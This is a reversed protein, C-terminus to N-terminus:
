LFCSKVNTSNAKLTNYGKSIVKGQKNILVAGYRHSVYSKLAEKLVESQLYSNIKNM